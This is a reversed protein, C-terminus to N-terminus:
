VSQPNEYFFLIETSGLPIIRLTTKIKKNDSTTLIIRKTYKTNTNNNISDSAQNILAAIEKQTDDDKFFAKIWLAITPIDRKHYSFENEFISNVYIIEGTTIAIKIPYPTNETIKRLLSESQLLKSNALQLKEEYQNIGFHDDTKRKKLHWYKYIFIISIFSLIFLLIYDIIANEQTETQTIDQDKFWKNYIRSYTGNNNINTIANNIDNLLATDKKNVAVSYERPLIPLGVTVINDLGHKVATYEGQLKPLVACTNPTESLVQLADYQDEVAIIRNNDIGATNLYKHLVSSNEVIIKLDKDDKVDKLSKWFDGKKVFLSHTIIIYPLSFNIREARSVKYYMGAIIDIDGNRLDNKINSWSGAKIELQYNLDEAIAKIIDIDFGAPQLNEDIYEYPYYAYDCAVKLTRISDQSAILSNISILFLLLLFSFYKVKHTM